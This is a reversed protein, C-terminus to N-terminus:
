LFFVGYICHSKLNCLKGIEEAVEMTQMALERTPSLVLCVPGNNQQTLPAQDLIHVVAPLLFGLSKGSGTEAVGMCDRGALCVPWCQAQIATPKEFKNTIALVKESVNLWSFEACPKFDSDEGSVDMVWEKRHADVEEQTMSKVKPHEEYFDKKFAVTTGEGVEVAMAGKTKGTGRGGLNIGDFEEDEEEVEEKKAKKKKKKPKEEEESEEAAAAEAEAKRKKKEKKEKKLRKKADEETEEEKDSGDSTPM